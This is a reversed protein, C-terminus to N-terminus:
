LQDTLMFVPRDAFGQFESAVKQMLESGVEVGFEPMDSVDIVEVYQYPPAADSGLLGIARYVTFNAVSALDNVTPIDTTRAWTEYDAVSADPKLNFLVVIRTM